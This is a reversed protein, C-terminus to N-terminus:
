GDWGAKRLGTVYRQAVDAPLFTELHAQSMAPVVQLMNQVAERAEELRGLYGLSAAL